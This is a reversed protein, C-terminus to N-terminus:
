NGSYFEAPGGQVSQPVQLRVLHVERAGGYLGGGRGEVVAVPAEEFVHAVGRRPAQEVALPWGVVDGEPAVGTGDLYLQILHSSQHKLFFYCIKM